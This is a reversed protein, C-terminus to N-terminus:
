PLKQRVSFSFRSGLGYVSEAKLSSGMMELLRHAVPLGLGLGDSNNGNETEFREFASFLKHMNEERIGSGTDKVSVNLIVSYPDDPTKECNVSFTVSGRETYRVANQLVADIIQRIRQGDGRLIEPLEDDTDSILFIGKKEAEKRIKFILDGIMDKFRYDSDELRIKGAEIESYDFIGNIYEQLVKGSERVGEAYEITEAESSHDLIKKNLSLVTLLQSGIEHSMVSLFSSKAESAALARESMDILEDRKKKEADIDEVLWLVHVPRGSKARESVMFRMRVWKNTVTYAEMMVTDCELLRTSLTSLDVFRLTEDASRQDTFKLTIESLLKQANDRKDRVLNDVTSNSSKIVEFTDRLIDIDYVTMFVNSISAMQSNLNQATESLADRRRKEEDINEVLLLVQEAAGGPGRKSAVFRARFWVNENDMFEETVSDKIKLREGLTSFDTFRRMSDAYNRGAIKDMVTYIVQQAGGSSGDVIETLKREDSKLESFTDNKLNIDHISYYINAVSSIQENMLKVAELTMDRERKERDIDEVMYMARAVNGDPTRGSVIYRARRWLKDENLFETTITNCDRLRENLKSFDVFDLIIDRTTEDSFKTMIERIKEQCSNHVESIVPNAQTKNNRIESFTDDIFNIEHLSIYIDATSSLQSDLRAAIMSRRSARAMMIGVTVVIAIITLVTFIFITLIAQLDRTADGASICYWGNKMVNCYVINHRGNYMIDFYERGTLLKEGVIAAGFSGDDISYNKGVEGKESNAVVTNNRDLVFLMDTIGSRVTEETIHQLEDLTIDFAVVSEGDSLMKALTIMVTGTKVDTYPDVITIEGGAEMATKYWPRSQARFGPEPMWGSGNLFEGNILGYIGNSKKDIAAEIGDSQDTLYELIDKSSRGDNIMKDLTHSTLEITDYSISLYNNMESVAKVSAMEGNRVMLKWKEQYIQRYYFLVIGVFFVTLIGSILISRAASYGKNRNKDRM